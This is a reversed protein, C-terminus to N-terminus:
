QEWAYAIVDLDCREAEDPQHPHTACNTILSPADDLCSFAYWLGPKISLLGYDDEGLITEKFAGQTESGARDDYVVVKVRGKPVAFNVSVKSHKHWGKTVGPNVWSFYVEGFQDFHPADARLMHMVKGRDDGFQKLPFFDVGDM